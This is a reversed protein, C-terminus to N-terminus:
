RKRTAPRFPSPLNSRPTADDDSLSPITFPSMLQSQSTTPINSQPTELLSDDYHASRNNPRNNSQPTSLASSVFPIPPRTRSYLMPQQNSQNVLPRDSQTNSQKMSPQLSPHITQQIPTTHISMTQQTHGQSPNNSQSSLHANPQSSSQNTRAALLLQRKKAARAAAKEEISTIRKILETSQNITQTELQNITETLESKITQNEETLVLFADEMAAMRRECDILRDTQEILRTECDVLRVEAAEARANSADLHTAIRALLSAMRTELDNSQDSQSLLQSSQNSQHKNSQNMSVPRSNTQHSSQKISQNARVSHSSVPRSNARSNPPNIPQYDDSHEDDFQNPQHISQDDFQTNPPYQQQNMWPFENEIEPQNFQQQDYEDEPYNPQNITQNISRPSDILDMPIGAIECLQRKSMRKLKRDILQDESLRYVSPDKVSPDQWGPRAKMSKSQKISKTSQAGLSRRPKLVSSMSKSLYNPQNIPQYNVNEDRQGLVSRSSKTTQSSRIHSQTVYM